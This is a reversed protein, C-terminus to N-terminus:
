FSGGAKLNEPNLPLLDDAVFRGDKRILEGDFYIEGGGYEARQISVLDWHVSSRNGNDADKYAQGPTFHFSGNIKEDFLTNKMPHHIHPNLGISFEGIFRAGEDTDLIQNLRKEHNATANVIKGNKFEFRINEFTEGQYVSPTNYTIVGNVSDKVPATYVEGDPINSTGACPVVPINKISFTLDTGPGLIRVQSTREMRKVLPEMAKAMRGYDVNVVGFYFDEFAETSMGAQQAIAANPYRLIVWKTHNVRYDLHVPQVYLQSYLKMKEKPVDAYEAVNEGGGIAIYCDMEKMLFFENEAKLKMHEASTGLYLARNIAHDHLQVYPYGGREFVASVLEKVLEMEKAFCDILVREGKQVRCSHEVLIRALKSIRLDRMRCKGKESQLLLHLIVRSVEMAIATFSKIKDSKSRM